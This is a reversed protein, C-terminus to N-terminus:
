STVSLKAAVQTKKKKKKKSYGFDFHLQYHLGVLYFILRVTHYKASLSGLSYM